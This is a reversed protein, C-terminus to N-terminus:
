SYSHTYSHLFRLHTPINSYAVGQWPNLAASVRNCARYIRAIKAIPDPVHLTVHPVPLNCRIPNSAGGPFASVSARQCASVVAPGGEGGEPVRSGTLCEAPGLRIQHQVRSGRSFLNRLSLESEPFHWFDPMKLAREERLGTCRRSGVQASPLFSLMQFSVGYSHGSHLGPDLRGSGNETRFEASASCAVVATHDAFECAPGSIGSVSVSLFTMRGICHPDHLISVATFSGKEM